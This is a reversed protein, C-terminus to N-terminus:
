AKCILTVKANCTSWQPIVNLYNLAAKQPLGGPLDRTNVLQRKDFCCRDDAHFWKRLTSSIVNIQADCQYAEDFELPLLDVHWMPQKLEEDALSRSIEQKAYIPLQSDKNVCVEFVELFEGLVEYGIKIQETNRYRCQRGTRRIKPQVEERCRLDSYNYISGDVAFYTERDCIATVKSRPFNTFGSPCYLLVGKNSPIELNGNINEFQPWQLTDEDIMLPQNNTLDDEINLICDLFLNISNTDNQM